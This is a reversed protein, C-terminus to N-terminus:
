ILITKKIIFYDENFKILIFDFNIIMIFGQLKGILNESIKRYIKSSFNRRSGSSVIASSTTSTADPTTSPSARSGLAGM